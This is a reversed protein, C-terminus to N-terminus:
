RARAKPGRPRADYKEFLKTQRSEMPIERGKIFVQLCRTGQMLPDGDTVQLDALKGPEISGIDKGAGLIRAAHITV